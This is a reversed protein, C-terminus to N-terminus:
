CVPVGAAAVRSFLLAADRFPVAKLGDTLLLFLQPKLRQPLCDM